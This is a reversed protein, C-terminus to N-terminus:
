EFIQRAGIGQNTQFGFVKARDEKSAIDALM